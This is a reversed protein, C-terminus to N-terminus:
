QPRAVYYNHVWDAALRSGGAIDRLEKTLEALFAARSEPRMASVEVEAEGWSLQFDIYSEPPEFVAKMTRTEMDVRHFGAKGLAARVREPDQLAKFEESSRALARAERLEAVNRPPSPNRHPEMVRFFAQFPPDRSGAWESFVFRGTPRLVRAVEKFCRDTGYYPIGLNSVVGDFTKGPYIVNRADMMEFRVSRIGLRAARYTGKALAGDALDIAVVAQPAVRPALLCALLGTGAGLDLFSENPRPDALDAVRRAIPEFRPAVHADYAEAMRSYEDAFLLVVEESNM